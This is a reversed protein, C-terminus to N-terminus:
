CAAQSGLSGVCPAIYGHVSQPPSGGQAVDLVTVNGLLDQSRYFSKFFVKQSPSETPGM